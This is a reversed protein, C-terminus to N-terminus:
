EYNSLKSKIKNHEREEVDLIRKKEKPLIWEAGGM